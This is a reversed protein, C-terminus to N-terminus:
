VRKLCELLGGSDARVENGYARKKAKRREERDHKIREKAQECSMEQDINSCEEKVPCNACPNSMRKGKAIERM